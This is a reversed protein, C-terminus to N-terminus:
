LIYKGMDEAVDDLGLAMLHEREPIGTQKDWGRLQYYDELM